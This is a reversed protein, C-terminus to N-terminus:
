QVLSTFDSESKWKLFEADDKAMQKFSGDKEIAAKLSAIGSTKDGKRASAVAKVYSALATEKENSSNIISEVSEAKGSLLSALALNVGKFEGFNKVAEDYKGNRVNIIGMNYNVEPGAGSAKKYYEMAKERNGEKASIIGLGLNVAAENPASKAAREYAAKAESVKNQMLLSVAYNNSARWDNPFKKEAAKYVNSKVNVDKSLNAGYLLEEISLSDPSSVMLKSIMEDTRSKKDVLLTLVSRRLKPMIQDKIEKYTQAMNSIEKERQEPDNYMSLVRIVLDKDKLSSAQVLNKFGDWDEAVKQAKYTKSDSLPNATEGKKKPKKFQSELAKSGSSGREESLEQNRDFKGDPSAYSSVEIGKFDYWMTNGQNSNIFDLMKKMEDSKLENPRVNSKNLEYFINASQNMSVVKVFNDKAFVGKEDNKVLLSTAMTGDAIELPAFDKPKKTKIQGSAKIALKSSKLESKFAIKDTYSFSGGNSYSIKQGSATSKEGVLV